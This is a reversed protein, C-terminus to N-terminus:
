ISLGALSQRCCDGLVRFIRQEKRFQGFDVKGLSSVGFTESAGVFSELDVGFPWEGM